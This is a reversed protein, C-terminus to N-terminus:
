SQERRVFLELRCDVLDYGLDAALRKLLADLSDDSFEVVDGNATDIMHHHRAKGALEYRARGDGFDIRRLIGDQEFLALTRYVTAISLGPYVAAARAHIERSDPHDNMETLVQIIARRTQGMPLGRQRCLQEMEAVRPDSHVDGRHSQVIPPRPRRVSFAMNM